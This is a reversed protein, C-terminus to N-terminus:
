AERIEHIKLTIQGLPLGKLHTSHDHLLHALQADTHDLWQNKIFWRDDDLYVFMKVCRGRIYDMNILIFALVGGGDVISRLAEDDLPGPTFHLFGLGAPTSMEYCDRVFADLNCGTIEIMADTDLEM